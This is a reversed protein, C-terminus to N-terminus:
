SCFLCTVNNDKAYHYGYKWDAWCQVSALLDDFPTAWVIQIDLIGVGGKSCAEDRAVSEQVNGPWEQHDVWDVMVVEATGATQLPLLPGRRWDVDPNRAQFLPLGLVVDYARMAGVLVEWEDVQSLHEIYQVTSTTKRSEGGHCMVQSNLGLTQIYAPSDPLLLQKRLRPAMFISTTSWNILAWMGQMEGNWGRYVLQSYYLVHGTQIHQMLGSKVHSGSPEGVVGQAEFTDSSTTHQWEDGDFDAHGVKRFMIWSRQVEVMLCSAM